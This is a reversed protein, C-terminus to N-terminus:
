LVQVSRADDRLSTRPVRVGLLRADVDTARRAPARCRPRAFTGGNGDAREDGVDTRLRRDRPRGIPLCEETWVSSVTCRAVLGPRGRRGPLSESDGGRGCGLTGGKPPDMVDTPPVGGSSLRVEPM